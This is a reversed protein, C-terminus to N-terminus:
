FIKFDEARFDEEEESIEGGLKSPIGYAERIERIKDREEQKDVYVTTVSLKDYKNVKKSLTEATSFTVEMYNIIQESSLKLGDPTENTQIDGRQIMEQRVFLTFNYAMVIDDHMGSAAEIRGNSKQELNRLEEQLLGGQAVGPTTNVISLLLNFMQERNSKNTMLGPVREGRILSHYLFMDYEYKWNDPAEGFIVEEIVGIGFSNREIVVKLNDPTLCHINSLQLLLSKVVGAYRKIVSFKGKYEGVEKGTEAETLVIASYDSTAATSAANDVGLIYQKDPDLEEYLKFKEGYAMQIELVKKPPTFTELIEDPFIASTSGLFILNIEQNVKRMNFNLAKVQDQFWDDTKNTESWHIAMKIFNNRDKSTKQKDEYDSYLRNRNEDWLEEVPWASAWNKYFWNEGAGNPTTSLIVGNPVGNKKATTGAKSVVPYLSAWVTEMHPIFAAEDIYVLPASMGRGVTDPNISGSVYNSNIRSKNDLELYTAKEGKNYKPVKLWDPLLSLMSYMREMADLASKSKLTLFEVKIGPHFSMAWLLYQLVTTTKFHQRSAMLSVFDGYQMLKVIDQYKKSSSWDPSDKLSVVAGPVQVKIYNKIFYLASTKCKLYEKVRFDEQQNQQRMYKISKYKDIQEFTLPTGKMITEAQENNTSDFDTQFNHFEADKSTIIKKPETHTIKSLDIDINM